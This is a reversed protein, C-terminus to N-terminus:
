FDNRWGVRRNMRGESVSGRGKYDEVYLGGYVPTTDKLLYKSYRCGGEVSLYNRQTAAIQKM